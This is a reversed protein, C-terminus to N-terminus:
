HLIRGQVRDGKGEFYERLQTIKSESVTAVVCASFRLKTGDPLTGCVDHEEVFGNSTESRIPNELDPACLHRVADDDGDAFARFLEEALKVSNM